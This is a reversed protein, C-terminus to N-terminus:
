GGFLRALIGKPKTTAEDRVQRQDTLLKVTVVQDEFAKRWHDRESRIDDKDAQLARKDAELAALRARLADVEAVLENIDSLSEAPAGHHLADSHLTTPNNRPIKVPYVRDLEAVDVVFDGNANKTATLKGSKIARFLTSRDKGTAKAAQPLTLQTM